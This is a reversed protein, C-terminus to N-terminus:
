EVSPFLQQMLGKKHLKLAEIKQTQATILDDLSSLCDAIKQQEKKSPIFTKIDEIQQTSLNPPESGSMSKEIDSILKSTQILFYVFISYQNTILKGVRQNLLADNFVKDVPAIKLQKNLIPRTLAIVFDGYKVLFNEYKEKYEIPLYSPTGHNMKQISVDAIKLWRVGSNLSDKSSFAFGQFISFVQKIPKEKWPGADRFEPFRLKPITEGEAPFLQQMLGKKHVKLSDLKQTEATILDDLSALCDAIKNQESFSPLALAYEKMLSIDGRPMKVGKAGKMVYDIFNDNRILFALYHNSISPKPRIVIVDNSAAGDKNAFWVKKLYPRINSVLIDKKIFRTATGSPPLKSAITVGGYDPLINETSIYNSLAVKELSVKQNIFDSVDELKKQEWEGADRFEPFRLKPIAM